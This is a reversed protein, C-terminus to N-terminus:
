LCHGFSSELYNARLLAIIVRLFHPKYFRKISKEYPMNDVYYISGLRM